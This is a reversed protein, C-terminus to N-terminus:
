GCANSRTTVQKKYPVGLMLVSGLVFLIVLSSFGLRQSDTVFTALAVLGPGLWVTVTSTMAYIGFFKGLEDRPSMSVLLTRCSSYAAIVFASLPVISILYIVDIPRTFIDRDAPNESMAILGFLLSDQSIGIQFCFILTISILEILIANRPGFARDLLGGLFGGIVASLTSLIGMMATESRTWGLVGSVYVAGITFLATLGDMFIMRAILFKMIPSHEAFLQRTAKVPAWQSPLFRATRWSADRQYLDPMGFLFPLIFLILWVACLAGSLRAVDQEALGWPPTKLFYFILLLVIVAALSGMSLGLGSISPIQLRNGAAPLLANHFLESVSYCCGSIVLLVMGLPIAIPSGPTVFGLGASALALLTMLGLLVPKKAGGRDMYGGLFPAMIAMVMGAFTVTSSFIAQGKASDGVVSEAFYTSFVYIIVVYYFPSRAFDFSAWWIGSLPLRRPEGSANM